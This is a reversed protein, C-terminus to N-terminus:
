QSSPDIREVDLIGGWSDVTIRYNKREVDFLDQVTCIIVWKNGDPKVSITEFIFNKLSKTDEFYNKAIIAAEKADV